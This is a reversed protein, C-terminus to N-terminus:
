KKTSEKIAAKIRNVVRLTPSRGARLQRVLNSDGVARTGFVSAPEGSKTLHHEVMLLLEKEDM